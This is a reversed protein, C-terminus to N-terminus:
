VFLMHMKYEIFKENLEISEKIQNKVKEKIEDHSLELNIIAFISDLKSGKVLSLGFKNLRFYLTDEGEFVIDFNRTTGKEKIEYVKKELKVKARIHFNDFSQLNDGSKQYRETTKISLVELESFM